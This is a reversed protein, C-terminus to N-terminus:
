VGLRYIKTDRINKCLNFSTRLVEVKPHVISSSFVNFFDLKDRLLGVQKTLFEGGTPFSSAARYITVRWLAICVKLSSSPHAEGDLTM